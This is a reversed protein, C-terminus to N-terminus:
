CSIYLCVCCADSIHNFIYKCSCLIHPHTHSLLCVGPFSLPVGSFLSEPPQLVYRVCSTRALDTTQVVSFKIFTLTFLDTPILYVQIQIWKSARCGEFGSVSCLGSTQPSRRRACGRLNHFPLIWLWTREM